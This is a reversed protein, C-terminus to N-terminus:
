GISYPDYGPASFPRIPPTGAAQPRGPPMGATDPESRNRLSYLWSPQVSPILTNWKTPLIREDGTQALCPTAAGAALVVGALFRTITM